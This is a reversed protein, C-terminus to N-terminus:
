QARIIELKWDLCDCEFEEDRFYFLFHKLDNQESGVTIWDQPCETLRLDGEVEYFEGWKPVLKSFRCQGRYWGEDNVTGLRYRFCNIFRIKGIDGKRFQPFLFRNMRFTLILDGNEVVVQPIPANPDANWEHNLQRFITM